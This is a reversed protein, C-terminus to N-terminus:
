FSSLPLLRVQFEGIGPFVWGKNEQYSPYRLEGAPGLGVEIDMILGSELFDSMNERFSKMFDSYMEIATRRGFLPKHDLGVSIYEKDREGSLTTYFIDPNTEGVDLVWKPIPINVIDGVNGGCQHFSMIAQLKLGCKQVIQFLSRYASWDYQKPGNSEIIGWWVDLMVGDVDAAKLQKLQKEIEEKNEFVNNPTIVGLPVYNALMKDKQTLLTPTQM